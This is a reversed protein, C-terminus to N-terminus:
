VDPIGHGVELKYVRPGNLSALLFKYGVLNGRLALAELTLIPEYTKRATLIDRRGPDYLTEIAYLQADM